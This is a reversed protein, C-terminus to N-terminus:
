KSVESHKKAYFFKILDVTPAPQNTCRGFHNRLLQRWFALMSYIEELQNKNFLAVHKTQSENANRNGAFSDELIGPFVESLFDERERYVVWKRSHRLTVIDGLGSRHWCWRSWLVEMRVASLKVFTKKLIIGNSLFYKSQFNEGPVM